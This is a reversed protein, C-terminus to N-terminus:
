IDSSSILNRKVLADLVRAAIEEVPLLTGGAMCHVLEIDLFRAALEFYKAMARSQIPHSAEYVDKKEGVYGRHGKKLVNEEAVEPVISFVLNVDPKPLGFHGYELELVWDVIDPKGLDVDRISQYVANSLVFRNIVLYDTEGDRYDRFSEWRDLAFWLAMSKGDVRDAPVAGTGALLNGVEAGFFTDYMPYDRLAVSHGMNALAKTLLHFQVGKGSGDIGEIAIIKTRRMPHARGAKGYKKFNTTLKVCIYRSNYIKARVVIFYKRILVSKVISM